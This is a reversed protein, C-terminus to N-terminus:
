KAATMQPAVTLSHTEMVFIQGVEGIEVPNRM